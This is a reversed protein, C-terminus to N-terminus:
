LIRLDKSVEDYTYQTSSGHSYLNQGVWVGDTKERSTDHEFLCQDAWRQAIAALEDNWVQSM